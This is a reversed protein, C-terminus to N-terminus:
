SSIVSPNLPYSMLQLDFAISARNFPLSRKNGTFDFAVGTRHFPISFLNIVSSAPGFCHKPWDEIRMLRFRLDNSYQYYYQTYACRMILPASALHM